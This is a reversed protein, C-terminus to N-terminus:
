RFETVETEPTRFRGTRQRFFDLQGVVKNTRDFFAPNDQFSALVFLPSGRARRANTRNLPQRSLEPAYYELVYRMDPPEYIVVSRPGARAEIWEIAGRFDFLRPNEDSTQQDILGILLTLMVGGVVLARGTPNRIWGTVLRAFLLFLLPVALLFYRVEFLQREFVAVFFLLVIPVLAAIGLAITQRSGGRGLLLLSVLLFLPWLAALLQTIGDSHYGWLAWAMNAMVAYFSLPEFTGAPAGAAAKTSSFQGEAFALLPVLQLILVVISYGFGVALARSPEGSSRRQLLVAIFILQQVGILLLGFYHSWLLAATALIYLAWNKTSPNRVVRVQTLLALLGFLAVFAYMRAEQTYWILLPSAAGFAAAILGTRRDYLERGLWYLAPIVLTGAILSPLRVALEGAGFVRVTLWLVIHHLPPHRDGYFINEFMDGLGLHAQYVSIAEDLWLGRPVALRLVLGVAVIGVLWRLATDRDTDPEGRPPLKGRPGFLEAEPEIERAGSLRQWLSRPDNAEKATPAPM